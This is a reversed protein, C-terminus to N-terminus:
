LNRFQYIAFYYIGGLGLWTAFLYIIWGVFPIAFLLWCVFVGLILSWFLNFNNKKFLYKVIIQGALIAAIIRAIYTAVLWWASIILALPIGIFTLILILAIPPVIFMIILGPLMTKLPNEGMKALIKPIIKKFILVLALGVVLASFIAFLKRFLWSIFAQNKEIKPINQQIKGGIAKSESIKAAKISTYTLNGAVLAGPAIILEEKENGSLKLKINEGIKGAITVKEAQGSLTGAIDGRIEVNAAAAFVDWGIKANNGIVINAGFLNVNRAVAGNVTLSNGAIRINGGVEGNIVINQAAAIIDGEIRGNVNITQAAAILDGGIDGDITITSGVAYFNGTIIEEKAVYISNGAKTDMAKAAGIPLLIIALLLLIKLTKIKM